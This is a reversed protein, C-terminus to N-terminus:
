GGLCSRMFETRADRSTDSASKRHERWKAACDQTRQARAAIAKKRAEAREQAAKRQEERKAAREQKAKEKAEKAAAREKLKAERAAAQEKAKAERAAAREEKAKAAAEKKRAREEAFSPKKNGADKPAATQAGAPAPPLACLMLGSVAAALILKLMAFRGHRQRVPMGRCINCMMSLASLQVHNMKKNCPARRLMAFFRLILPPDLDRDAVFARTPRLTRAEDRAALL